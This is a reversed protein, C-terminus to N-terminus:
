HKNKIKEAQKTSLNHHAIKKLDNFIDELLTTTRVDDFQLITVYHAALEQFATGYALMAFYINDPDNYQIAMAAVKSGMAISKEIKLDLDDKPKEETPTDNM